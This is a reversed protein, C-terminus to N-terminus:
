IYFLTVCHLSRKQIGEDYFNNRGLLQKLKRVQERYLNTIESGYDAMLQLMNRPNDLISVM